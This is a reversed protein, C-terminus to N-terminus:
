IPPPPTLFSPGAEALSAEYLDLVTKLMLAQLQLNDVGRFDNCAMYAKSLNFTEADSKIVGDPVMIAARKSTIDKIHGLGSNKGRALQRQQTYVAIAVDASPFRMKVDRTTVWM